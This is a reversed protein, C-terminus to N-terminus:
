HVNNKVHRKITLEAYCGAEHTLEIKKVFKSTDKGSEYLRGSKGKICIVTDYDGVDIVDKNPRIGVFKKILNIM